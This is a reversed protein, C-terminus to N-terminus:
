EAQQNELGMWDGPKFPLDEPQEAKVSSVVFALGDPAVLGTNGSPMLYVRYCYDNSNLRRSQLVCFNGGRTEWGAELTNGTLYSGPFWQLLKGGRAMHYGWWGGNGVTPRFARGLLHADLSVGTLRVAGLETLHNETSAYRDGALRFTERCQNFNVNKGDLFQELCPGYIAHFAIRGAAGHGALDVPNDLVFQQSDPAQDSRTQLADTRGGPDYEDGEFFAFLYRNEGARDILHAFDPVATEFRKNTEGDWRVPRGHAAPVFLMAGDIGLGNSSASLIEWAGRSQGNLFVRGYGGKRLGSVTERIKQGLEAYDTSGYDFHAINLRFVDYGSQNLKRLYYPAVPHDLAPPYRHGAFGPIHVIAGRSKDPGDNRFKWPVILRSRIETDFVPPTPWLLRSRVSHVLCDGLHAREECLQLAKEVYISDDLKCNSGNCRWYTAYGGDPAVVLALPYPEKEYREIVYRASVSLREPYESVPKIWRTDDTRIQASASAAALLGALLIAVFRFM